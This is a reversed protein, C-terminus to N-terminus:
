KELLEKLSNLATKWNKESLTKAEETPLNVEAVSLDTKGGHESLAWTVHQYNEPSDPLGSFESWHSHVLLQPPKIELIKGKDEYPKGEWTGKHVITSGPKWDTRTDVGFFWDKIIKPTTLAEWVKEAPANITISSEANLADQMINTRLKRKM